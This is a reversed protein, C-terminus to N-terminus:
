NGHMTVEEKEKRQVIVIVYSVSRWVHSSHSVLEWGGKVAANLKNLLGSQDGSVSADIIVGSAM